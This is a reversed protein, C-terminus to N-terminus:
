SQSIVFFVDCMATTVVTKAGLEALLALARISIGHINRIFAEARRQIGMERSKQAEMHRQIGM